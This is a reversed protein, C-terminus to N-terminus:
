KGVMGKIFEDVKAKTDIVFVNFGFDSIRRQQKFQLTTPVRGPAKLEVFAIKGGPFMVLRDPVGANGPSVFKYAIGGATQVKTRLYAEITKESLM